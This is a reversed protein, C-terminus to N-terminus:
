QGFWGLIQHVREVSMYIPKVGLVSDFMGVQWFPVLHFIYQISNIPFDFSMSVASVEKKTFVVLTAVSQHSFQDWMWHVKSCEQRGWIHVIHFFRQNSQLVFICLLQWSCWVQCSRYLHKQLNFCKEHTESNFCLRNSIYKVDKSCAKDPHHDWSWVSWHTWSCGRCEIAGWFWLYSCFQM